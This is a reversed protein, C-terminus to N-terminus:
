RATRLFGQVPHSTLLHWNALPALSLKQPFPPPSGSWTGGAGYAQFGGFSFVRLSGIWGGSAARAWWNSPLIYFWDEYAGHALWDANTVAVPVDTTIGGSGVSVSRKQAECTAVVAALSFVALSVPCLNARLWAGVRYLGVFACAAAIVALVALCLHLVVNQFIEAM